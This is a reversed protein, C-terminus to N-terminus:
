MSAKRLMTRIKSKLKKDTYILYKCLTEIGGGIVWTGEPASRPEGTVIAENSVINGGSIKPALAHALLDLVYGVKDGEKTKVIVAKKCLSNEPELECHLKTGIDVQKKYAHFGKVRSTLTAVCVVIYM